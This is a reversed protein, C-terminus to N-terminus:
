APLHGEVAFLDGHSARQRLAILAKYAPSDYFARLRQMDPFEIIVLRRPSYDGELAEAAGGRVLYRGGQAAILAPVQQRYQEYLAPDTIEINGWIYAAM